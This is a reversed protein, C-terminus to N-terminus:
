DVKFQRRYKVFAKKSSSVFGISEFFGHAKVREVSSLMMIKSCSASQSYREVERMLATGVRSGRYRAHVVINEVVAFPQNGFMVDSCLSVLATGAIEAGVEAVFLATNSSKAIDDIRGPLVSIAPNSVLEQYLNQIAPADIGVAKRVTARAITDEKVKDDLAM